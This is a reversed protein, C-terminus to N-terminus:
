LDLFHHWLVKEIRRGAPLLDHKVPIRLVASNSIAEKGNLYFGVHRHGEKEEWILIAGAAAEHLMIERWGCRLLESVCGEVTAHPHAYLATSIGLLIGSVFAACSLEGNNLIDVERGDVRWFSKQYAESGLSKELRWLLNKVYMQKMMLLRAFLFFPRWGNNSSAGRKV